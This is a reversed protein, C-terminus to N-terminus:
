NIQINNLEKLVDHDFLDIKIVPKDTLPKM